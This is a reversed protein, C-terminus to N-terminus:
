NDDSNGEIKELISILSLKEADSLTSTDLTAVEQKITIDSKSQTPLLSGYVKLAQIKDIQKTVPDSIISELQNFFYDVRKDTNM